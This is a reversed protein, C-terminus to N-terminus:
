PCPYMKNLMFVVADRAPLARTDANASTMVWVIRRPANGLTNAYFRNNAAEQTPETSRVMHHIDVMCAEHKKKQQTEAAYREMYVAEIYSSCDTATGGRIQAACMDHLEGATRPPEALAVGSAGFICLAAAIALGAMSKKM